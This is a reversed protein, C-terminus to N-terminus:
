DNAAERRKEQSENRGSAGCWRCSRDFLFDRRNPHQVVDLTAYRHCLNEPDKQAEELRVSRISGLCNCVFSWNIYNPYLPLVPFTTRALFSNSGFFLVKVQGRWHSPSGALLMEVFEEASMSTNSRESRKLWNAIPFIKKGVHTFAISDYCGKEVHGETFWPGFSLIASSHGRTFNRPLAYEVVDDMTMNWAKSEFIVSPPQKKRIM